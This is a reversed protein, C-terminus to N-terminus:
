VLKEMGRYHAYLGMARSPPLEPADANAVGVRAIYANLGDPLKRLMELVEAPLSTDGAGASPLVAVCARQGTEDRFWINPYVGPIDQCSYIPLTNDKLEQVVLEVRFNCLEWESMPAPEESAPAATPNVPSMDLLSFLNWGTTLPQMIGTWLPFVVPELRHRACEEAFLARQEQPIEFTASAAAGEVKKQSTMAVLLVAYVRAGLGFVLDAFAPKSPRAKLWRFSGCGACADMCAQLHKGALMFAEAYDAEPIAM